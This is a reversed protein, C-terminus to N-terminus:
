KAKNIYVDKMYFPTATAPDTTKNNKYDRYALNGWTKIDIKELPYYRIHDAAVLSAEPNEQDTIVELGSTVSQLWGTLRDHQIHQPELVPQMTVNSYCAAFYEGARAKSIVAHLIGAEPQEMIIAQYALLTLKNHLILPIDLAYCFGKAVALGIRLGTYSGPGACVAVARLRKMDIGATALVEEMMRHIAAAHDRSQENIAIAVPDGNATLAVTGHDASTDIQLIYTM